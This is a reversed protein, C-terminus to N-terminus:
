SVKTFSKIEAQFKPLTDGVWSRQDHEEERAMIQLFINTLLFTTTNLFLFRVYLSLGNLRLTAERRPLM